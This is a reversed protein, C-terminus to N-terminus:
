DVHIGNIYKWGKQLMCKRNKYTNQTSDPCNSLDDVCDEHSKYPHVMIECLSAVSSAPTPKLRYDGCGASFCLLLFLSIIMLNINKLM